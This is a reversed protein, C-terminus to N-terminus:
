PAGTTYVDRTLEAPSPDTGDKAYDIAAVIEAEAAIRIAEAEDKRLIGFTELNAEFHGIPDRAKWEEIERAFEDYVAGM